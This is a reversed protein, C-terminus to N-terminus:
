NLRHLPNERQHTLITIKKNNFIFMRFPNKQCSIYKIVSGLFTDFTPYNVLNGQEFYIKNDLFMQIMKM